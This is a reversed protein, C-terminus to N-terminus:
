CMTKLPSSPSHCLSENKIDLTIFAHSHYFDSEIEQFALFFTRGRLGGGFPSLEWSNLIWLSLAHSHYFDSEIEQFALFFTRGRLGGGFPSLM